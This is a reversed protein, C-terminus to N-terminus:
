KLELRSIKKKIRNDVNPIYIIRIEFFRAITDGYFCPSDMIIRTDLRSKRLFVILSALMDVIYKSDLAFFNICLKVSTQNQCIARDINYLINDAVIGTAEDTVYEDSLRDSNVGFICINILLLFAIYM